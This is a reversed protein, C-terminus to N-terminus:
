SAVPTIIPAPLDWYGLVEADELTDYYDGSLWKGYNYQGTEYSVETFDKRKFRVKVLYNTDSEVGPNGTKMKGLNM